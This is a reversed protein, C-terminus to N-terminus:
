CVIRLVRYVFSRRHFCLGRQRCAFIAETSFQSHQTGKPLCYSTNPSSVAALLTATRASSWDDSRLVQRNPIRFGGPAVPTQLV